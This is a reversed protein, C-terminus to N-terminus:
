RHSISKMFGSGSESSSADTFDERTISMFSSSAEASGADTAVCISFSTLYQHTWQSVSVVADQRWKTSSTGFRGVAEDGLREATRIHEKSEVFV